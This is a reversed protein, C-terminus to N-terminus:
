VEALGEYLTSADDLWLAWKALESDSLRIGIDWGDKKRPRQKLWKVRGRVDILGAPSECNISVQVPDGEQIPPQGPSRLRLGGHSIDITSCISGDGGTRDIPRYAGQIRAPNRCQARKEPTANM